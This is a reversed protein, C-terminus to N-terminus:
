IQQGGEGTTPQLDWCPRMSDSGVSALWPLLLVGDKESLQSGRQVHYSVVGIGDAAGPSHSCSGPRVWGNRDGPETGRPLLVSVRMLSRRQHFVSRPCCSRLFHIQIQDYGKGTPSESVQSPMQRVQPTGTPSKQAERRSSQKHHLTSIVTQQNPQRAVM